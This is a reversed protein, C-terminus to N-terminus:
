VKFVSAFAPNASLIDPRAAGGAAAPPEPLDDFLFKPGGAICLQRHTM